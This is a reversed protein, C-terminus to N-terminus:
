RVFGCGEFTVNFLTATTNILSIAGGTTSPSSKGAYASKHFLVNYLLLPTSAVINSCGLFACNRLQTPSGDSTFYNLPSSSQARTCQIIAPSDLTASGNAMADLCPQLFGATNARLLDPLMQLLLMLIFLYSRFSYM